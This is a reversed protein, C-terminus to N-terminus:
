LKDWFQKMFSRNQAAWEAHTPPCYSKAITEITKGKYLPKNMLEGFYLIGERPSSFSCGIMGFYNNKTKAMNSAGLGSETRAVSLAFLGNVGFTQEMDYFDQGHGALASNALLKDFEAASLNTKAFVNYSFEKKPLESKKKELIQKMKTQTSNAQEWFLKASQITEGYEDLGLARASSAMASADEKVKEESQIAQELQEISMNQMEQESIKESLTSEGVMAQARVSYEITDLKKVMSERDPLVLDEARSIDRSFTTLNQTSAVTINNERCVAEASETGAAIASFPITLMLGLCFINKATQKAFKM